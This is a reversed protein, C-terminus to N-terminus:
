GSDYQVFQLNRISFDVNETLIHCKLTVSSLLYINAKTAPFTSPFLSNSPSIAHATFSTLSKSTFFFLCISLVFLLFMVKSIFTCRTLAITKGTTM